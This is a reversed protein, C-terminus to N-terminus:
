GFIYLNFYLYNNNKGSNRIPTFSPRECQPLLTPQSHNLILHQSYKPGLHVLYCPLPPSWMIILNILQVGWGIKNPLDFWSYHILRPVCCTHLSLLLAYLTKTPFGSPFLGSPVGLRLHSPDEPFQIHLWPSSRNDWSLPCTAPVQLHPLWGEHEMFRPIEQSAAFRSAEWSLSQQM